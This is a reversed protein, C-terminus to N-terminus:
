VLDPKWIVWEPHVHATPSLEYCGTTAEEALVWGVGQYAFPTQNRSATCQRPDTILTKDAPVSLKQPHPVTPCRHFKTAQAYELHAKVMTEARSHNTIKLAFSVRDSELHTCSLLLLVAGYSAGDTVDEDHGSGGTLDPREARTVM